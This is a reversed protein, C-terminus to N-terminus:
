SLPLGDADTFKNTFLLTFLDYLGWIVGVSGASLCSILLLLGGIKIKGVYFRHLGFVGFCILCLLIAMSKKKPSKLEKEESLEM